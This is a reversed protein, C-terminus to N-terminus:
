SYRLVLPSCCIMMNLLPQDDFNDNIIKKNIQQKTMLADAYRLRTHTHTHPEAREKLGSLTIIAGEGVRAM